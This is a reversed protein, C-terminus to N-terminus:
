RLDTRERMVRAFRPLGSAYFGDCAVEYVAGVRFTISRAGTLVHPASRVATRDRRQLESHEVHYAAGAATWVLTARREDVAVCVCEITTAQKIKRKSGRRGAPADLAVVVLGEGGEREVYGQWLEQWRSAPVQPVIPCRRWGRPTQRQWRGAADRETPQDLDECVLASQVRWLADRRACYPEAALSRGDLQLLDHVHVLAYGRRERALIGAETHAELEGALISHPASVRCGILDQVAAADVARGTRSTLAHVRGARDTHVHVYMGDVKPQVAYRTPPLRELHALSLRGRAGTYM